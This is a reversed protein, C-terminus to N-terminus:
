AIVKLWYVLYCIEMAWSVLADVGYAVLNCPYEWVYILPSSFLHDVIRDDSASVRILVHAVVLGLNHGIRLVHDNENGRDHSADREDGSGCAIAKWRKAFTHVHVHLTCHVQLM